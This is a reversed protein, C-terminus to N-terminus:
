QSTHLKYYEINQGADCDLNTGMFVLIVEVPVMGELIYHPDSFGIQLLHFQLRTGLGRGAKRRKCVALSLQAPGPYSAVPITHMTEPRLPLSYHLHIYLRTHM